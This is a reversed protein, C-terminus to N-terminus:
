WRVSKVEIKIKERLIEKKTKAKHNRQITNRRNTYMSVTLLAGINSPPGRIVVAVVSAASATTARDPVTTRRFPVVVTTNLVIVVVSAAHIVPPAIYLSPAVSCRPQLSRAMAAAM